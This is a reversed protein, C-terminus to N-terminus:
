TLLTRLDPELADAYRMMGLDTPHSGDVTGEGDTGLVDRCVRYSLNMGGAATLDDFATRFQKWREAHEKAKQPLWAEEGHARDELMLIPTKAHRERVVKVVAETDKTIPQTKGMNAMCDLVFVAPDLEALVRAVEVEMKGNGSFGFNLMSRNLRRGLIAVFAMGPRSACGGQTISTGYFLIPKEKRPPVGEFTAGKPVGVEFKKMGNYLPLNIHYARRGSPMEHILRGVIKTKEPKQTGAWVWKGDLMAYLDVGSVGTAAMHPMAMREGLLEYRVYISPTDAVFHVSMGTCNRGLDWVQERVVSKARAPLRDYYNETDDFGRGEVGWERADHWVLDDPIVVATTTAPNTAPAGFLAPATVAVTSAALFQRRNL